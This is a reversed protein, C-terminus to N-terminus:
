DYFWGYDGYSNSSKRLYFEATKNTGDIFRGVDHVVHCQDDRLNITLIHDDPNDPDYEWLEIKETEHVGELSVCFKYDGGHSPKTGTVYKKLDKNWKFESMGLYDWEGPGAFVTIPMILAFSFALFSTGIMKLKM